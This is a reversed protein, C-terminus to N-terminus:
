ASIAGIILMCEYDFAIIEDSQGSDFLARLEDALEPYGPQDPQPTYSSSKMRGLLGEFDLFQRNAFSFTKPASADLFENVTGDTIRTQVLNDYNPVHKRLLSEYQQQFETRTDRRNWVLAVQGRPKLIRQWELKAPGLQFWHFSQAATVLDVSGSDLTTKEATGDVPHFLASGGSAGIASERMGTNPEVAFVELKRDLLQRTFIGTGSGVDAVSAGIDLSCVSLITDVAEEPYSPRYGVYNQVRGDFRDTSRSM